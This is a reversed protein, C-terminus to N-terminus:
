AAAATEPAPARTATIMVGSVLTYAALWADRLHPTFRPGFHAALTDILAEGVTAYHEEEVGYAVHRRALAQLPALLTAPRDAGNVVFALAARLKRGQAKRDTSVFLQALDPDIQFLRSYFLMAVADGIPALEAFSERIVRVQDPTM